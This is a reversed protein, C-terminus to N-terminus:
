STIYFNRYPRPPGIGAGSADTVDVIVQYSGPGPPTWAYSWETWPLGPHSRTVDLWRFGAAFESGNWWMDMGRVRIAIRLTPISVNDLALGRLNMPANPYGTEPWAPTAISVIPDITDPPATTVTFVRSAPTPDANNSQDYAVAVVRFTGPYPAVFSARWTMSTGHSPDTFIAGESPTPYWYTNAWLGSAVDQVFVRVHKLAQADTAGGTFTVPWGDFTTGDAPTGITTDPPTADVPEGVAFNVYPRPPPDPLGTEDVAVATVNVPSPAPPTWTYSWRTSAVGTEALTATVWTLPGVWASGSWYELTTRNRIALRVASVGSDDDATGSITVPGFPLQQNQAPTRIVAVPPAPDAAQAVPTSAVALAVAILVARPHRTRRLRRGM